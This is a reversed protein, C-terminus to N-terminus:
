RFKKNIRFILFITFTKVFFIQYPSEQYAPALVIQIVDVISHNFIVIIFDCDIM